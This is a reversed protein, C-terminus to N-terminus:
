PLDITEAFFEVSEIIDGKLLIGHREMDQYNGNADIWSPAYLYLMGEAPSNSFYMPWGCIRRGDSLNAVVYRKAQDTFVDYWITERATQNTIGLRRLHRMHFDKTISIGIVLPALIALAFVAMLRWPEVSLENDATLSVIQFDPTILWVPLFVILSFALAEFVKSVPDKQARVILSNLVVTSLFGPALFILVTLGELTFNM